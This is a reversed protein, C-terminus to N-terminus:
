EPLADRDLKGHFTTPITEIRMVTAPVMYDPLRDAVAARVATPDAVTGTGGAPVVYGVLVADGAANTRVAAAARAVQPAAELAAEIEGLEIRLGRVKVQGDARGLFELTGDRLRRARDGTRYMREGPAGHPDAVFAGATRGPMGLYGRALQAGSLYLDGPVGTPAPRLRDDLVRLGTNWAPGGMAADRAGADPA